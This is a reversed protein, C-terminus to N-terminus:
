GFAVCPYARGLHPALSRGSAGQSCIAPVHCILGLCDVYVLPRLRAALANLALDATPDTLQTKIGAAPLGTADTFRAAFGFSPGEDHQMVLKFLLSHWGPSLNLPAAEPPEM